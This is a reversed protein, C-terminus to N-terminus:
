STSELTPIPTNKEIVQESYKGATIVGIGHAAVDMLLPAGPGLGAPRSLSNAQIAAGTAVALMPDLAVQPEQGFLAAVADRHSM